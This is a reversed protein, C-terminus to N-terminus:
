KLCYGYVKKYIEDVIKPYESKNILKPYSVLFMPVPNKDKSYTPQVYNYKNIKFNVRRWFDIRREAIKTEPREAEAIIFKKNERIFKKLLRTGRGQNRLEKKIAVHEILAFSGFNWTELIGILSDKDYASYFNHSKNGFLKILDGLRRREDAPFAEEYIKWADSFDKNNKELTEILKM